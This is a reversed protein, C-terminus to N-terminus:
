PVQAELSIAPPAAADRQLLQMLRRDVKGTVALSHLEEYRQVGSSTRPGVIGDLPGPNIGLAALRKQVDLVEAWTLDPESATIPSSVVAPAVAPEPGPVAAAPEIGQASVESTPASEIAPTAAPPPAVPMAAVAVAALVPAPPATAAEALTPRPPQADGEVFAAYHYGATAAGAVAILLLLPWAKWERPAPPLAEPVLIASRRAAIQQSLRALSQQFTDDDVEVSSRWDQTSDMAM